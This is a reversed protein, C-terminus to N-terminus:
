RTALLLLEGERARPRQRGLHQEEVASAFGILRLVRPRACTSSIWALPVLITMVAYDRGSRAKVEGVLDRNMLAPRM